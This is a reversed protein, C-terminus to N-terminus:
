ILFTSRRPCSASGPAVMRTKKSSIFVEESRPRNVSIRISCENLPIGRGLLMKKVAAMLGQLARESAASFWGSGSAFRGTILRCSYKTWLSGSLRCSRTHSTMAGEQSPRSRKMRWCISSSSQSSGALLSCRFVEGPRLCCSHLARRLTWENKLVFKPSLAALLRSRRRTKGAAWKKRLTSGGDSSCCREGASCILRATPRAM